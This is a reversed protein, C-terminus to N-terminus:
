SARVSRALGAHVQDLASIATAREAETMEHDSFRAERYLWALVALSKPNVQHDGLVRQVLETSTDSPRREVGAAIVSAELRLWCAV